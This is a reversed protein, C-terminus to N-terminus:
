TPKRPPIGRAPTPDEPKAEPRADVQPRVVLRDPLRMDVVKLPRDLLGQDQHLSMLRKIAAVEQGEPLLIDAGTTLRLNWRREGVRVAAVLRSLLGPTENLADILPAAAAPAGAGVILPLGRSETLDQEVVKGARDVLSFKGQYQWVAFPQREVLRIVIRDPLHREITVSQVSMLTEIREKMPGLPVSLIADDRNVGVAARLLHEPTNVRGEVEVHRVRLGASAATRSFRAQMAAVMGGPEATRLAMRGVLVVSGIGAIGLGLRAHRRVRRLLLKLRGPRDHISLRPTNRVRSM